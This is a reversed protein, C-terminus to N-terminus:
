SSYTEAPLTPFITPRGANVVLVKSSNPVPLFRSLQIINLEGAALGKGIGREILESDRGVFQHAPAALVDSAASLALTALLAGSTARM